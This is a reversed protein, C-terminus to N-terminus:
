RRTMSRYPEVRSASRKLLDAGGGAGSVALLSVVKAAIAAASRGGKPIKARGSDARAGSLLRRALILQFGGLLGGTVQLLRSLLRGDWPAPWVTSRRQM